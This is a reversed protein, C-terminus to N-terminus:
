RRRCSRGAYLRDGPGPAPAAACTARTPHRGRGAAVRLRRHRARRRVVSRASPWSCRASGTASWRGRLVAPRSRSFDFGGSDPLEPNRHVTSYAILSFVTSRSRRPRLRVVRVARPERAEVVRALPGYNPRARDVSLREADPRPRRRAPSQPSWRPCTAAWASARTASGFHRFLNNASARARPPLAGVLIALQIERSRIGFSTVVATSDEFATAKVAAFVAIVMFVLIAGVKIFQTEVTMYVVPSATLIAGIVVLVGIAIANPDGFGVAFTFVTAASTALRAVDDRPDRGGRPHRGVPALAAPLLRDGDRGTACRREIEMNIFFQVAVGVVAAWLFVLGAQSAAPFLIYEGSAVGVGVLIVSPGLLKRLPPASRAVPAGGLTARAFRGTTVPEPELVKPM